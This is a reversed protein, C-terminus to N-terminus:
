DSASPYPIPRDPKGKAKRIAKMNKEVSRKKAMYKKMYAKREAESPKTRIMESLTPDHPKNVKYVALELKNVRETLETLQKRIDPELTRPEHGPCVQRAWHKTGCIRCKPADMVPMWESNADERFQCTHRTRQVTAVKTNDDWLTKSVAFEPPWEKPTDDM